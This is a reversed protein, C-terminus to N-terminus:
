PNKPADGKPPESKPPAPPASSQPSGPPTGAPPAPTGPPSPPAIPPGGLSPTGGKPALSDPLKLEPGKTEPTLKNHLDKAVQLVEARKAELEDAEKVARKGVATEEGVLKAFERFKAAAKGVDGRDQGPNKEEPIGVLALEANALGDIVQGRLTLDNAFADSLKGFEARAKEINEIGRKRQEPVRLLEIGDPGLLQRAAQLRAIKGPLTDAHDKAFEEFQPLATIADLGRWLNSNVEANKHAIYWWAGGAIVVIVAVAAVRFSVLQGSKARGALTNLREALVNTELEHREEAKM